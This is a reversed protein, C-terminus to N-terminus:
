IRIISRSPWETRRVDSSQHRKISPHNNSHSNHQVPAVNSSAEESTAYRNYRSSNELVSTQINAKGAKPLGHSLAMCGTSTLLVAQFSLRPPFVRHGAADGQVTTITAIHVRMHKAVTISAGLADSPVAPYTAALQWPSATGDALSTAYASNSSANRGIPLSSAPLEGVALAPREDASGQGIAAPTTTHKDLFPARAHM